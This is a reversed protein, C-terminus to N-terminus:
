HERIMKVIADVALVATLGGLVWTAIVLRKTWDVLAQATRDSAAASASLSTELRGVVAEMTKELNTGVKAVTQRASDIEGATHQIADTLPKTGHVLATIQESM